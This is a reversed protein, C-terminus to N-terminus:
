RRSSIEIPLRKAGPKGLVISRGLASLIQHAMTVSPCLGAEALSLYQRTVGCRKAMELQNIGLETRYKKLAEGFASKDMPWIM